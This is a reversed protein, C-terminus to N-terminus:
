PSSIQYVEVLGVGADPQGAVIATYAGPAITAILASESASAPALSAARLAPADPGTEWGNNSRLLAGQANRLELSTAALADPVGFAGLSPGLARVAVTTEGQGNIIFGGILVHDGPGVEGRTSINSLTASSQIKTDGPAGPGAPVAADNSRESEISGDSATVAYTTGTSTGLPISWATPAPTYVTATYNYLGTATKQYVNYYLVSQPPASWSLTFPKLPPPTPTQALLCSSPLLIFLFLLKKM